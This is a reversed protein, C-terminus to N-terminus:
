RQRSCCGTCAASSVFISGAAATLPVNRTSPAVRGRWEPVWLRRAGLVDSWHHKYDSLGWFLQCRSLRRAKMHCIALWFVVVFLSYSTHGSPFSMQADKFEWKSMTPRCISVPYPVSSNCCIASFTLITLLETAPAALCFYYLWIM